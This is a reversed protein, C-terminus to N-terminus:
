SSGKDIVTSYYSAFSNGFFPQKDTNESSCGKKMKLGVPM